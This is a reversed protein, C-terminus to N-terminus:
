TALGEKEPSLLFKGPPRPMVQMMVSWISATSLRWVVHDGVALRTLCPEEQDFSLPSQAVHLSRTILSLTQGKCWSVRLLGFSLLLREPAVFCSFAINHFTSFILCSVGLGPLSVLALLKKSLELTLPGM